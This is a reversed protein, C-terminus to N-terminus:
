RLYAHFLYMLLIDMAAQASELKKFETKMLQQIQETYCKIRDCLYVHVLNRRKAVSGM